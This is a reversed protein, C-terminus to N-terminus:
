SMFVRVSNTTAKASVAPSKGSAVAAAVTWPSTSGRHMWGHAAADIREPPSLPEHLPETETIVYLRVACFSPVPRRPGAASHKVSYM